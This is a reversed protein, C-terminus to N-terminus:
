CLGIMGDLSVVVDRIIFYLRMFVLVTIQNQTQRHWKSNLKWTALHDCMVNSCGAFSNMPAM